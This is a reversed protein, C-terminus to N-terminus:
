SIVTEIMFRTTSGIFRYCYSIDVTVGYRAIANKAALAHIPESDILVGDMDFIVYRLM